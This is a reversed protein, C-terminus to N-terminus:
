PTIPEVEPTGRFELTGTALDGEIWADVPIGPISAWILSQGSVQVNDEKVNNYLRMTDQADEPDHFMRIKYMFGVADKVTLMYVEGQIVVVDYIPPLPVPTDYNYTPM